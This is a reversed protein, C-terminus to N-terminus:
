FSARVGFRVIRGGVDHTDGILNDIVPAHVYAAEGTFGLLWGPPQM